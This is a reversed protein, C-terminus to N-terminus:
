PSNYRTRLAQVAREASELAGEMYGVFLSLYDGVFHLRGEPQRLTPLAQTLYGPAHYIYAHQAFPDTSWAYSVASILQSRCDPYMTELVQLCREIRQDADWGAWRLAPEGGVWLSLIGPEGTETDTEEWIATIEPEHAIRTPARLRWFRTRFQILTRVVQGKGAHTLAERRASSLAPRWEIQELVPFPLAVIAFRGRVQRTQGNQRYLALVETESQHVAEVVANLRIQGGQQRIAAALAYPLQETGSEIRYIGHEVGKGYFSEQAIVSFISLHEPEAAELNRTYRRFLPEGAQWLHHQRAWDHWSVYDLQRLPEPAHWPAERHPLQQALMGVQKWFQRLAHHASKGYPKHPTVGWFDPRTTLPLDFFHALRLLRIHNSDIFEPGLEAHQNATPAHWTAVRGGVRARAELVCVTHGEQLLLYGAYLGALGAGLIICDYRNANDTDM